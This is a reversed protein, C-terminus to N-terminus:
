PQPAILTVWGMPKAGTDHAVQDRAGAYKPDLAAALALVGVSTKREWLGSYGHEGAAARDADFKVTSHVFEQHTKQGLAFPVLWDVGMQISPSGTASTHFWDYGHMRAALAAVALPELDYVVYHMADRKYFDNVSGDARINQKVQRTYAHAARAILAHDGSIYAGLVALKVRHSSWNYPDGAYNADLWDLYTRAMSRFFARARQEADHPRDAQILDFTVALADLNTEDIPNGSIKYATIWADLLRAAQALYRKDATIRYALALSRMAYWDKEAEESQDRIGQHYLTGETHVREMAHPQLDLAADAARIEAKAAPLDSRSPLSQIAQPSVLAYDQASACPAALIAACVASFIVAPLVSPHCAPISRGTFRM